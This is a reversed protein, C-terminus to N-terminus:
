LAYPSMETRFLRDMVIGLGFNYRPSIHHIHHFHSARGTHSLLITSAIAVSGATLNHFHSHCFLVHSLLLSGLNTLIVDFPTAYVALFGVPHRLEHHKKHFLAYVPPWYHLLRHMQYYWIDGWIIEVVIWFFEQWVGKWYERVPVAWLMISLCAPITVCVNWLTTRIQSPSVDKYLHRALRYDVYSCTLYWLISWAPYFFVEM